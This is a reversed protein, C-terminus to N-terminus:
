RPPMGQPMPLSRSNKAHDYAAREEPTVKEVYLVRYDRVMFDVRRVVFHPVIVNVKKEKWMRSTEEWTQGKPDYAIMHFEYDLPLPYDDVYVIKNLRIGGSTETAAVVAGQVLDEGKPDHSTPVPPIDSAGDGKCGNALAIVALLVLARRTM